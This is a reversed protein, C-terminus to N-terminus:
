AGAPGHTHREIRRATASATPRPEIKTRLTRLTSSAKQTLGNMGGERRIQFSRPRLAPICITAGGSGTRLKLRGNRLRMPAGFSGQQRLYKKKRFIHNEKAM